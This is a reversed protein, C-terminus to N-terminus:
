EFIDNIQYIKEGDTPTVVVVSDGKNFTSNGDPIEIVGQHSICAILVNKKTKINKLPIGANLTDATVRFEIAETHRDAIFHVAEAAGAQYKMARVYRVISNCSLVDPSIISGLPLNDLIDSNQMHSIKTIVQPIELSHGYLSIIINLEDLGTLTVLADTSPLGESELLPQNSADGHIIEVADPLIEDLRECTEYDKEIISVKFGDHSLKKALYFAVRGGGCILVSKIKKKVVGLSSLLLSLDNTPATVFVKDGDRLIFEGDPTIARGGRLVVCVLVKCKLVSSLDKLPLDCLQSDSDIKIEVIEARGKAFAERKLFGPFKLLREIEIAAQKEPNVIMSLAFIDRMKYIQDSYEPNRIRAITHIKPNISHAIVCCLLNVEDAGTTAILLDADKVGAKTLVDATACNGSVSMVDCEQIESELINVDSDVLTIDHGESSLQNAILFGVKGAGAIIIKM